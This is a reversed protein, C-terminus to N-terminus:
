GEFRRSIHDSHNGEAICSLLEDSTLEEDVSYVDALSIVRPRDYIMRLVHHKMAAKGLAIGSTTKTLAGYKDVRRMIVENGILVGPIWALM